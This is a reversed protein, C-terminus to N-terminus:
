GHIAAEAQAPRKMGQQAEQLSIRGDGGTDYFSIVESAPQRTVKETPKLETETLEGDGAEDWRDFKQLRGLMQRQVPTTRAVPGPATSCSESVALLPLGLSKTTSQPQRGVGHGAVESATM